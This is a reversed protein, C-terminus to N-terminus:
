QLYDEWAFQECCCPVFVFEAQGLKIKDYAALPVFTMIMEGNLYTLGNSEGPQIFFERKTPEFTIVAHRNRSVSPEQALVVDMNGARGINNRGAKLNLSQGFYAGQVCVLWGVVLEQGGGLDYFAMTKVDETSAAKAHAAVAQVAEQLSPAAEPEPEAKQEEPPAVLQPADDGPELYAGDEPAKAAAPTDSIKGGGDQDWISGTPQDDKHEKKKGRGGSFLGSLGGGQQPKVSVQRPKAAPEEKPAPAPISAPAPASAPGCHPCEDYKEADYFHKNPCKTLKM